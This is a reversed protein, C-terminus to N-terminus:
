LGPAVTVHYIRLLGYTPGILGLLPMWNPGVGVKLVSKGGYPLKEKIDFIYNLYDHMYTDMNSSELSIEDEIIVQISGLKSRSDAKAAGSIDKLGEIKGHGRNFFSHWTKGDINAAAMGTFSIKEVVKEVDKEAYEHLERIFLQYLINIVKTKGTGAGGIIGLYLPPHSPDIRKKRVWNLVFWFIRKQEINLSRIEAYYNQNALITENNCASTPYSEDHFDEEDSDNIEDSMPFISEIEPEDLAAQLNELNKDLDPQLKSIEDFAEKIDSDGKEYELMLPAIQKKYFDYCETVGM